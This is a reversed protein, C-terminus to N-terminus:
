QSASHVAQALNVNKHHGALFIPRPLINDQSLGVCRHRNAFAAARRISLSVNNRM